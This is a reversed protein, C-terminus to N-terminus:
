PSFFHFCILLTTSVIIIFLLTMLTFFPSQTVGLVFLFYIDLLDVRCINPVSPCCILSAQFIGCDGLCCSSLLHAPARSLYAKVALPSGVGSVM